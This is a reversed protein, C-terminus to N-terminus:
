IHVSILLRQPHNPRHGPFPPLHISWPRLFKPQRGSHLRSFLKFSRGLIVTFGAKQVATLPTDYAARDLQPIEQNLGEGEDASSDATAPAM